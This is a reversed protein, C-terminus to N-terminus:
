CGHQFPTLTFNELQESVPTHIHVDLPTLNNTHGGFSAERCCKEIVLQTPVDIGFALYFSWRTEPSIPSPTCRSGASREIRAQYFLGSSAFDCHSTRGTFGVRVGYSYWDQLVPIGAALALGCLGVNRFLTRAYRQSSCEAFGVYDCNLAKVPNRVLVYGNGRWVPRAQCFELQEPIYATEEIKMRLGYQLYWESVNSARFKPEDHRAMFIVLDDGDCLFKAPIGKELCMQQALAISIICNGLSTNVDGSCRIAGYNLSLRVDGLRCKGVNHLQYNLLRRLTPDNKFLSTYLEHEVRLLEAGISQDFRSADLGIAVYGRDFWHQICEGKRQMTMGKAICPVEQDIARTLADFIHHENPQLYSGLMINFLPSRPNIIRPVQRKSHVTKEWKIFLSTEAEKRLSIPCARLRDLAHQYLRRTRGPRTQVYQAFTLRSPVGVCDAVRKVFERLPRTDARCPPRTDGQENLYMIREKLGALVNDLTKAFPAVPQTIFPHSLRYCYGARQPVWAPHGCVKLSGM